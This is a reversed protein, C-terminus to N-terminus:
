ARIKLGYPKVSESWEIDANLDVMSYLQEVGATWVNDFEM